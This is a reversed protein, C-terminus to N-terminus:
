RLASVLLNTSTVEGSVQVARKLETSTYTNNLVVVPCGIRAGGLFVEVYQYCNGAMIGVCDGKKSGMQLMARALIQSRYAMQRYSLRTSQWQILVAAKNGYQTAGEDVLQHIPSRWLPRTKPGQVLALTHNNQLPRSAM